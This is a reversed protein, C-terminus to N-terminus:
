LKFLTPCTIRFAAFEVDFIIHWRLPSGNVTQWISPRCALSSRAKTSATSISSYLTLFTIILITAPCLARSSLFSFSFPFPPLTLPYKLVHRLPTSPLSFELTFHLPPCYPTPLSTFNVLCRLSDDDVTVCPILYGTGDTNIAQMSM